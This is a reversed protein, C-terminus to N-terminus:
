KGWKWSPPEGKIFCIAILLGCLAVCYVSFYLPGVKPLLYISGLAALVGVLILVAWGEWTSPMGWGWGFTKAPFWYRKEM